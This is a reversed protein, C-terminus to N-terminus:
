HHAAVHRQGEPIPLYKSYFRGGSQPRGDYSDLELFDVFLAECMTVANQMTGANIAM